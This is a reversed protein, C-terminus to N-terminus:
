PLSIRGGALPAGIGTTGPFTIPLNKSRRVALYAFAQAEMADISWGMDTASVLRCPLRSALERMIALNHGGGGCVIAREPPEPMAEVALAISAATFAALTAAADRTPLDAVVDRSFANRDLSKPAPLAFFPHGLLTALIEADVTGATSLAGDRDFSQGTRELVLDDLLANGPGTDCAIPDHGNAIYTMNAVGGINIVVIPGDLRARDVLARHYVPVLPAGQGRGAVDDARFDWAVPIGLRAALGQGHGIQVTLQKEPRHLVTQGHFGVMAISSAAIAHAALFAEVAEAHRETVLTEAEGLTGPRADRDDLGVADALAGRLMIQDGPTYPFSAHPGFVIGNEGDTEILAVDVGDMSTGSMLGLARMVTM